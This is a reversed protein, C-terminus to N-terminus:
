SIFVKVGCPRIAGIAIPRGNRKASFEIDRSETFKRHVLSHELDAYSKLSDVNSPKEGALATAIVRGEQDLYSVSVQGNPDVVLNKKYHSANGVNTGFLRILESRTAGGYFYRTTHAGDHRFEEGVGSQRAVRGTGDNLYETQSYVYGEADPIFDRHIGNTANQNSYYWAAGSSSAMISNGTRRNDYHFKKLDASTNNEVITEVADFVNFAPRYSLSVDTVPVPLIDVSKRGEYDYMTEGVLTTTDSSLNTQSQRQRLTGDFYQMIKKYKGEEAFVTQLQWNKEPEHNDIAIAECPSYFWEGPIRHDPYQPNYGAARVRYWLEGDPYYTLHTYYPKSVTVRVPEKFEFAEQPTSGTFNEHEEIFVWELDYETAEGAYTWSLTSTRYLSDFCFSPM